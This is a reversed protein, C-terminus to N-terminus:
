SFRNEDAEGEVRRRYVGAVGTDESGGTDGPQRHLIRITIEKKM